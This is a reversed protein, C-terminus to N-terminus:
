YQQAAPRLDSNEALLHLLQGTINVNPSNKM